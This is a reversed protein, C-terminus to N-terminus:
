QPDQNFVADSTQVGSRPVDTAAGFVELDPASNSEESLSSELQPGGNAENDSISFFPDQSYGSGRNLKRWHKPQIGEPLM